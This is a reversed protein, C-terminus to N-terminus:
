VTGRQILGDERKVAGIAEIAELPTTVTIIGEAKGAEREAKQLKTYRGKPLKTELMHWTKRFWVALDCPRDLVWVEAGVAELAEIIPRQNADKRKAYRALSVRHSWIKRAIVPNIRRVHRWAKARLARSGERSLFDTLGGAADSKAEGRKVGM